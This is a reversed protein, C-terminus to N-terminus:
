TLRVLWHQMREDERLIAELRRRARAARTRVTAPRIGLMEAIESSTLRGGMTGLAIIEQDVPALHTLAENVAAAVDGEVSPVGGDTTDERPAVDPRVRERRLWDVFRNRAIRFVWAAFGGGRRAVYMHPHLAAHEISEFALDEAVVPRAGRSLLYARLRPAFEHVFEEFASDEGLLMRQHLRELADRQLSGDGM